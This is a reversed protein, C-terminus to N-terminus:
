KEEWILKSQFLKKQVLYKTSVNELYTTEGRIFVNITLANKFYYYM